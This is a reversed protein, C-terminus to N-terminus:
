GEKFIATVLAKAMNVPVANGIQRTVESVNGTFEYTSESDTFGMARALELNTLMRFRLDLLYPEGDILVLRRPDINNEAETVVAEVLGTNQKTVVTPLPADVTRVCGGNSGTQDWQVMFPNIVATGRKTTVASLPEEVSRAPRDDGGDKVGVLLPNVLAGAGHGTVTNLPKDMHYVRDGDPRIRNQVIFPQVLGFRDKTTITPVPKEICAADGTANYKVIIPSVFSVGGHTALTPLPSDAARVVGKHQGLVVPQILSIAGAASVTPIPNDASRARSGSQQGLVFPVAVPKILTSIGDCTVTPIPSDTSRYAPSNGNKGMVFPQVIDGAIDGDPELGLLNIYLPALPGGFKQLGRAIRRRTKESLPRKQYKPDDLLSRGPNAWDIIERAARWKRRNDVMNPEGSCSHSPEPFRVPKGDKRAILFFRTRTTADGYDASNLYKWEAKYGM